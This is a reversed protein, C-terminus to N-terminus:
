SRLVEERHSCIQERLSSLGADAGARIEGGPHRNNENFGLDPAQM